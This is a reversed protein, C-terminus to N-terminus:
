EDQHALKLAPAHVKLAEGATDVGFGPGAACISRSSKTSRVRAPSAAAFFQPLRRVFVARLRCYSGIPYYGRSFRPAAQPLPACDPRKSLKGDTEVGWRRCAKRARWTRLSWLSRGTSYTM